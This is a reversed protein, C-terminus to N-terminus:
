GSGADLKSQAPGFAPICKVSHEECLRRFMAELERKKLASKVIVSRAPEDALYVSPKLRMPDYYILSAHDKAAELTKELERESVEGGLYVLPGVFLWTKVGLESLRKLAGLRLSPPPACPELLKSKADDYVTVTFGVDVLSRHRIFVDADRIVLPSKTQVSVRFGHALLLKLSARTLSYVAEVPQYADTLTGVGVVGRKKKAVEESLVELLNEKVAVVRGWNAKVEEDQVYNPAYCYLCGHQCGVYPNLAYDLDPLGSKSLATKVRSFTV